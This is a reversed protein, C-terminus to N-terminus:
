AAIKKWKKEAESDAKDANITKVVRLEAKLNRELRTDAGEAEALQRIQEEIAKVGVMYLLWVYVVVVCVCYGCVLRHTPRDAYVCVRESVQVCLNKLEAAPKKSLNRMSPCSASDRRDLITGM